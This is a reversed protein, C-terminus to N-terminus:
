RAFPRCVKAKLNMYRLRITRRSNPLDSVQRRPGNECSLLAQEEPRAYWLEGMQGVKKEGRNKRWTRCSRTFGEIWSYVGILGVAALLTITLLAIGILAGYLSVWNCGNSM